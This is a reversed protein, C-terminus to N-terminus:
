KIPAKTQSINKLSFEESFEKQIREAEEELMDHLQNIEQKEEKSAKKFMERSPYRHQYLAQFYHVLEHALVDDNCGEILYVKNEYPDYIGQNRVEESEGQKEAQALMEIGEKLIDERSRGKLHEFFPTAEFDRFAIDVVVKLFEETKLKEIEPRPIASDIKLGMKAAVWEFIKDETSLTPEAFSQGFVMFSLLILTIIRIKRM